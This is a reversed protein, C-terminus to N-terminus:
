HSRHAVSASPTIKPPRASAARRRWGGLPPRVLATRRPPPFDFHRRITPFSFLARERAHRFSHRRTAATACLVCDHAIGNDGGPSSLSAHICAAPSRRLTNRRLCRALSPLSRNFTILCATARRASRHRPPSILATSRGSSRPRWVPASTVTVVASPRKCTRGPLTLLWKRCYKAPTKSLSPCNCHNSVSTCLARTRLSSEAPHARRSSMTRPPSLGVSWGFMTKKVSITRRFSPAAPTSARRWSPMAAIPRSSHTRYQLELPHPFDGPRDPTPDLKSFAAGLSIWRASSRRYLAQRASFTTGSVQRFSSTEGMGFCGPASRTSKSRGILSRSTVRFATQPM